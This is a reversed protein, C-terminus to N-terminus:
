IEPNFVGAISTRWRKLQEPKLGKTNGWPQKM